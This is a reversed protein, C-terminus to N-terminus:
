GSLRALLAAHLAAPAALIGPSRPDHKDFRLAEGTITSVRAGAREAILSAAAIDWDWTQRFSFMGDHRGEAVLCLRYALAPRFARKVQPVGGPWLHPQMGASTALLTAGTLEIRPSAQLVRGQLTAPGLAHAAYTRGLAPLHVAGARMRGREAIGAVIAFTDNGAMFARTGDIPDVIFCREHTLRGPADVSEESLWGHDPRAERLRTELLANVALDAETVPGADDPKEWAKPAKRWHALAVQGAAHLTDCLLDLDRQLASEPGQM